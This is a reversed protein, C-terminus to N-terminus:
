THSTPLGPAPFCQGKGNAYLNPNFAVHGGGTTRFFMQPPKQPFNSPCFMDFEFLGHEYPTGAPGVILVKLVDFRSEGHRVYIGDPLDNSLSSVQALLKRMRLPSPKSKEASLADKKYHFNELVMEDPVDKVCNARHWEAAKNAVEQLEVAEAQKAASAMMSRTRVNTTPQSSQRTSSTSPHCPEQTEEIALEGRLSALWDAINCIRSVVALLIAGDKSGTNGLKTAKEVFRRCPVALHEVIAALSQTSEHEAAGAANKDKLQGLAVAFLQESPPFLHRPRLLITRISLHSGMTELLDLVATIPGCRDNIEEIAAQRLFESAHQLMPSRWVMASVLPQALCDFPTTGRTGAPLLFSLAQFYLELDDPKDSSSPQPKGRTAQWSAVNDGYGTGKSLQSKRANRSNTESASSPEPKQRPKKAKRPASASHGAPPEIGCLLCFILFLRGQDCCWTAKFTKASVVHKLAPMWDSSHYSDCGICSWGKCSTCFFCPHFFDPDTLELGGRSPPWARSKRSENLLQKTRKILEVADIKIPSQCNTCRASQLRRWYETIEDPQAFVIDVSERRMLDQDERDFEEQLREAVARDNQMQASREDDVDM